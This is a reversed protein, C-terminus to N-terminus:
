HASLSMMLVFLATMCVCACMCVYLVCLSVSPAVLAKCPSRSFLLTTPLPSTPSFPNSTIFYLTYLRNRQFHYHHHHHTPSPNTTTHVHNLLILTQFFPHQPLSGWINYCTDHTFTSASSCLSWIIHPRTVWNNHLSQRHTHTHIMGPLGTSARPGLTVGFCFFMSSLAAQQQNVSSSCKIATKAATRNHTHSYPQSDLLPFNNFETM